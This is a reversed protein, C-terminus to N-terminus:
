FPSHVKKNGHCCFKNGGTYNAVNEIFSCGYMNLQTVTNAFIAGGHAAFNNSFDCSTLEVYNITQFQFVGGTYSDTKVVGAGTFHIRSFTVSKKYKLLLFFSFYM